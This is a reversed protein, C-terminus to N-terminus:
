EYLGEKRKEDYVENQTPRTLGAHGFGVQGFGLVVSFRVRRFVIRDFVLVITFCHSRFRVRGFVLVVSFYDPRTKIKSLQLLGNVEIRCSKIANIYQLLSSCSFVVVM